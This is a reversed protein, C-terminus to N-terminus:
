FPASLKGLPSPLLLLLSMQNIWNSIMLVARSWPCLSQCYGLLLQSCIGCVWCPGHRDHRSEELGSQVLYEFLRRFCTCTPLAVLRQGRQVVVYQIRSKPLVRSSDYRRDFKRKYIYFYRFMLRWPGLHSDTHSVM